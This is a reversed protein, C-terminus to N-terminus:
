LPSLARPIVFNNVQGGDVQEHSIWRIKFVRSFLSMVFLECLMSHRRLAASILKNM